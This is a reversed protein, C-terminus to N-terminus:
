DLHEIGVDVLQSLVEQETLDYTEALEEIERRTEEDCVITYRQM